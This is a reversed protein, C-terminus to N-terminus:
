ADLREAYPVEEGHELARRLIRLYMAWCYSSIRWHENPHPWGTHSFRVMTARDRPELRFGVRTGLWDADAHVLELEFAAGPRAETVRARWQYEPGFGLAFEAGVVAEGASTETWWRDLGAPTSVARYVADAPAKIPFDHHIHYRQSPPTM